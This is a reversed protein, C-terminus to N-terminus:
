TIPPAKPLWGNNTPGSDAKMVGTGGSAARATTMSLVPTNKGAAPWVLCSLARAKSALPWSTGAFATQVEVAGSLIETSAAPRSLAWPTPEACTKAWTPASREAGVSTTTATGRGPASNTLSACTSDTPAGKAGAPAAEPAAM